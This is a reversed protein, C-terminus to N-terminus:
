PPQEKGAFNDRPPLSLLAHPPDAM